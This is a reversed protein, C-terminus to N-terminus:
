AFTDVGLIVQIDAYRTQITKNSPSKIVRTIHDIQTEIDYNIEKLMQFEKKLRELDQAKRILFNFTTDSIHYTASFPNDIHEKIIARLREHDKM